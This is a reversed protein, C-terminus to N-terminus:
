KRSTSWHQVEESVFAECRSWKVEGVEFFRMLANEFVTIDAYKMTDVRVTMTVAAISKHLSILSPLGLFGVIEDV